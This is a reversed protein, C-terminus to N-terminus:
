LSYDADFESGYIMTRAVAAYRPSDKDSPLSVRGSAIKELWQVSDHYDKAVEEPRTGDYLYYRAMQCAHRTLAQPQDTLPVSYGGDRLYGDIEAAADALM